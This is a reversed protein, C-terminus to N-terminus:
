LPGKKAEFQELWIEYEQLQHDLVQDWTCPREISHYINKRDKDRYYTSCQSRRVFHVNEDHSM